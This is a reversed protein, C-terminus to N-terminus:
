FWVGYVDAWSDRADIICDCHGCCSIGHPNLPADFLDIRYGTVAGCASDITTMM